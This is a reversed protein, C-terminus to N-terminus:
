NTFANIITKLEEIQSQQEKIAEVLLPVIKEYQVTLYDQGSRSSGDKERDFPAFKVAQPLVAQVEQAILGSDNYRLSPIFGADIARDNWDFTVGNLSKVKELSNPINTINEKLRRDSSYATIDSSAFLAGATTMRIAWAAWAGTLFGYDGGSSGYLQFGFTSVGNVTGLIGVDTGATGIVQLNRTNYTSMRVQGSSSGGLYLDGGATIAGGSGINGATYYGGSTNFQHYVTGNSRIVIAHDTGLTGYSQYAYGIGYMTAITNWSDGITWIIKAATSNSDYDGIMGHFNNSKYGLGSSYFQNAAQVNSSANLTTANLTGTSSQINVAACSYALTGITNTYPAGWLVQYAATDTRNPLYTVSGANGTTTTATTATSANGSLAGSFTPATITGSTWIGLGLATLTVGNNMLLLQHELGAKSQPNNGAGGYGPNYSWALGYLNGINSSAGGDTLIYAPGM